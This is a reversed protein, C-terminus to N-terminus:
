SGLSPTDKTLLLNSSLDIRGQAIPLTGNASTGLADFSKSVSRTLSLKVGHGGAGM